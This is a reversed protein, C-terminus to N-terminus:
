FVRTLIRWKRGAKWVKSGLLFPHRQGAFISYSDNYLMIGDKGWLLVMPVPSHLLFNVSTILSQPWNNIPGLGNESWNYVRILEGLKGGEKIVSEM